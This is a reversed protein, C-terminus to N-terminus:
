GVEARLWARAAKWRREFTRLPIALLSATEESSLGGFFRLEVSRAMEPDFSGLRELAEDFALMDVARDEYAVLLTDLPVREGPPNRKDRGRARAHDVLACRMATSALALFGLRDTAALERGDHLRLYAEHVLATAQLTHDKRQERMWRAALAHLEAYLEPTCDGRSPDKPEETDL